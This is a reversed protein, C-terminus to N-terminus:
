FFLRFCMVFGTLQVPVAYCFSIFLPFCSSPELIESGPSTASSSGTATRTRMDVYTPVYETGNVMDVLKMKYNM